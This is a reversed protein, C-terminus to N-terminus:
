PEDEWPRLRAGHRVHLIVIEDNRVAYFILFPYRGVPMMRTGPEDAAQGMLPFEALNAITRRIREAVAAAATRNPGAIYSFIDDIEVLATETYRVKM